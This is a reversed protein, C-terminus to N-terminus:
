RHPVREAPRGARRGLLPVSRQFERFEDPAVKKRWALYEKGTIITLAVLTGLVGSVLLILLLRPAPSTSREPRELVMIIPTNRVEEIRAQEYAQALATFVQHRLDVNRQLRSREFTLHPTQFSRNGELFAELEAEAALLDQRAERLRSEVFTREAAAVTQRRELNFNNLLELLRNNLQISLAPWPTRTALTVINTELNVSARIDKALRKTASKLQEDTTAGTIGYLDILNGAMTDTRGFRTHEFRYESMIAEALLERSTLVRAFFPASEGRGATPLTFGFQAALGSLRSGAADGTQPIFASEAVQKRGVVITIAVAVVVTTFPVMVLVRLHRLLLGAIALISIQEPAIPTTRTSIPATREPGERSETMETM